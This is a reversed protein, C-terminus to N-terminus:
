SANGEYQKTLQHDFGFASGAVFVLVENPDLIAKAAVVDTKM